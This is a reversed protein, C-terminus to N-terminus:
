SISKIKAFFFLITGKSTFDDPYLVCLDNSTNVSFNESRIKFLYKTYVFSKLLSCSIIQM